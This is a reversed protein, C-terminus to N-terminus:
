FSLLKVKDLIQKPVLAKQNFLKNNMEKWMFCVCAFWILKLYPYTSRPLGSLHGFQLFHEDLGEPPVFTIDLWHFLHYWVNCLTTCGLFLHNASEELGCGGVYHIDDNQLVYHRQLNDKSPLRNCFLRRAFISVKLPVNKIWVDKVLGRTTPETASPLYIYTGKVSYGNVPDLHWRWRDPLHEQLVIDHLLVSCERVCEEEWAFLRRRWVWAGGGEEWGHRAMEEVSVWIDMALDFLRPFRERLPVGDM